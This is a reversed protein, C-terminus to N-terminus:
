KAVCLQTATQALSITSVAFMMVDLCHGLPSDNKEPVYFHLLYEM